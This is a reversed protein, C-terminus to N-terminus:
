EIAAPRPSDIRADVLFVVGLAAFAWLDRAGRTLGLLVAAGVVALRLRSLWRHAREHAVWTQQRADLRTQYVTGIPEGAHPATTV